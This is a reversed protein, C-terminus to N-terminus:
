QGHIARIISTVGEVFHRDGLAALVLALVILGFCGCGSLDITSRNSAQKPEDDELFNEDHM